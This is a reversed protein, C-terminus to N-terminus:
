RLPFSANFNDAILGIPNRSNPNFVGSLYSIKGAFDITNEIEIKLQFELPTYGAFGIAEYRNRNIIGGAVYTKRDRKKNIFVSRTVKNNNDLLDLVIVSVANGGYMIAGDCVQNVRSTGKTVQLHYSCHYEFYESYIGASSSISILLVGISFIFRGLFLSTFFSKLNKDKM